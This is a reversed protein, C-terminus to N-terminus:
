GGSIRLKGSDDKSIHTNEKKPYNVVNKDQYQLFYNKLVAAGHYNQLGNEYVLNNMKKEFSIRNLYSPIIIKRLDDPFESINLDCLKKFIIHHYPWHLYNKTLSESFLYKNNVYKEDLYDNSISVNIIKDEFGRLLLCNLVFLYDYYGPINLKKHTFTLSSFIHNNNQINFDSELYCNILQKHILSNIKTKINIILDDKDYHMRIFLFSKSIYNRLIMNDVSIMLSSQIQAICLFWMKDGYFIIESYEFNEHIKVLSPNLLDSKVTKGKLKKASSKEKLKLKDIEKKNKFDNIVVTMSKKSKFQIKSQVM